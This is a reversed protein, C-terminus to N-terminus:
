YVAGGGRRKDQDLGVRLRLFLLYLILGSDLLVIEGAISYLKIRFIEWAKKNNDHNLAGSLSVGELTPRDLGEIPSHEQLRM